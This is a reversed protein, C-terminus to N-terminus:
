RILSVLACISAITRGAPAGGTSDDRPPVSGSRPAPEIGSGDIGGALGDVGLAVTEGSDGTVGLAGSAVAGEVVGFAGPRGANGGIGDVAEAVQVNGPALPGKALLRGLVGKGPM